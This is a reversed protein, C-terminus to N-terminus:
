AGSPPPMLVLPAAAKWSLFCSSRIHVRLLPQPLIAGAISHTGQSPFSYSLICVKLPLQSSKVQKNDEQLLRTLWQPFCTTVGSLGAIQDLFAKEHHHHLFHSAVQSSPVRNSVEGPMKAQRGNCRTARGLRYIAWWPGEGRQGSGYEAERPKRRQLQNLAFM